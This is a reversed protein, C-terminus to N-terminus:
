TPINFGKLRWVLLSRVISPYIIKLSPKLPAAMPDPEPTTTEEPSSFYLGNLFAM